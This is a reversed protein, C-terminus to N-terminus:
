IWGCRQGVPEACLGCRGSGFKRCLIDNDELGVGSLSSTGGPVSVLGVYQESSSVGGRSVRLHWQGDGACDKWIYTGSDVSGVVEPDGCEVGGGPPGSACAALTTLNLNGSTMRVKSSGLFVNQSLPTVPNFCANAPAKFSLGDVGNNWVKLTYRLENAARDNEVIDTPEVSIKQLSNVGNNANVVAQYSFGSSVGGGSVRLTWRDDSDCSNWLYTGTESTNDITPEGCASGGVPADDAPDLPDTGADVEDGDNVGGGDTDPDFPDTGIAREQDDTLGDGDTDTAPGCPTM